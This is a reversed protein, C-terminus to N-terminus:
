HPSPAARCRIPHHDGNEVARCIFSPSTIRNHNRRLLAITASASTYARDFGWAGGTLRREGNKEGWSSMVHCSMVHCSMVHGRVVLCVYQVAEAIALEAGGRLLLVELVGEDDGDSSDGPAHAVRSLITTQHCSRSTSENKTHRSNSTTLRENLFPNCTSFSTQKKKISSTPTTSAKAKENSM